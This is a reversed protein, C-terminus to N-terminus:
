AKFNYVPIIRDIVKVTDTIRELIEELPKYASPREDLTGEHVSTTFIGDMSERFKGMEGDEKAMRRSMLRGAGHPASYNWDPNGKGVALISGDRMNIPILLEEGEYSSIAGKRIIKDRSDIYNHVTHFYRFNKLDDNYFEKLILTAMTERNLRAYDQAVRMDHIYNDMKGGKLSCLAKPYSAGCDKVAISQYYEAIQKGLNRSGSHIVLYHYGRSDRGVEIFHNGGGLTGISKQFRKTDKLENLCKLSGIQPMLFVPDRHTKTGSPIKRRIFKDLERFDFSRNLLKVTLIGCGIDVGVLNPVVVDGLEATLGIVCGIGQHVDPMIRIRRGLTYDQDIFEKIQLIAGEEILETFVVAEGYKGKFFMVEVGRISPKIGKM